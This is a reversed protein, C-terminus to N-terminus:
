RIFPKFGEATLERRVKEADTRSRYPGAVVRYFGDNAKAQGPSLVSAPYNKSKLVRVVNAADQQNSVAAVQVLLGSPVRATRASDVSDGAGLAEDPTEEGTTVPPETAPSQTPSLQSEAPRSPSAGSPASEGATSSESSAIPQSPESSKVEAPVDSPAAVQETALASAPHGQRYGLFFGLSFFVACLVVVAVFAGLLSRTSVGEPEQNM